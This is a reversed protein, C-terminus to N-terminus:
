QERRSNGPCTDAKGSVGARGATVRGESMNDTGKAKVNGEGRGRRQKAFGLDDCKLYKWRQSTKGLVSPCDGAEKRLTGTAPRDPVHEAALGVRRLCLAQRPGPVLPARPVCFERRTFLSRKVAVTDRNNTKMDPKQVCRLALCTNM